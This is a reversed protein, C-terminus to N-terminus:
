QSPAALGKKKLMFDISPDRGRFRRFLEAPDASNGSSYICERAAKATAPDFIDGKEKFAAFADADLVEAWLYVYYGSAYDSCSFLHQFHTPRHRMVIGQPMGLRALEKEEFRQLDFDDYHPQLHLALDVLACATYEITAFGQNFCAAAKRKALLEDPVAM